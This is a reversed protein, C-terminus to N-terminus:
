QEVQTTDQLAAFRTVAGVTRPGAIGDVMGRFVGEERLRDQVIRVVEPPRDGIQDTLRQLATADGGTLAKWYLEAARGTDALIDESGDELIEALFSHAHLYGQAVSKTFWDKARPVSQEVVTGTNYFYGMFFQAVPNGEEADAAAIEFADAADKGDILDRLYLLTLVEGSLWDGREVGELALREAKAHDPGTEDGPSFASYAGLGFAEPRAATIGLAYAQRAARMNGAAQDVRGMATIAAPNGPHTDLVATCAARATPQDIGSLLRPGGHQPLGAAKVCAAAARAGDSIRDLAAQADNRVSCIKCTDLWAAIAEANHADIATQLAANEETLRTDSLIDEILADAQAKQDCAVCTDRWDRLGNLDRAARLARFRATEEARASDAAEIRAIRAEADDRFQCLDCNAVYVRLREPTEDDRISDWVGTELDLAMQRRSITRLRETLEQEHPCYTCTELYAGIQDPESADRLFLAKFEERGVAGDMAPILPPGSHRAVVLEDTGDGRLILSYRAACDPGRTMSRTVAGSIWRTAETATTMGDGDGFPVRDALGGLVAYEMPVTRARCAEAENGVVLVTMAMGIGQFSSSLADLVSPLRGEPDAMYVFAMQRKDPNLAAVMAELRQSFGDLAMTEGRMSVNVGDAGGGLELSTVLHLPGSTASTSDRTSVFTSISNSRLIAALVQENVRDVTPLTDLRLVSLDGEVPGPAAAVPDTGLFVLRPEDENEAAAPSAISSLVAAAVTLLAKM